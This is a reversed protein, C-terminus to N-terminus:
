KYGPFKSRIAGSVDTRLRYDLIVIADPESPSIDPIDVIHEKALSVLADPVPLPPVVFEMEEVHAKAALKPFRVQSAIEIKADPLSLYDEVISVLECLASIAVKVDRFMPLTRFEVTKRTIKRQTHRNWAWTQFNIATRYANTQNILQSPKGTNPDVWEAGTTARCYKNEDRLRKWFQGKVGLRKGWAEWRKRWHDFFAPRTLMLAAGSHRFSLHVHMGVSSNTYDPYLVQLRNIQEGLNGPETQFEWPTIGRPLQTTEGKRLLFCACNPDCECWRCTCNDPRATDQFKAQDADEGDLDVPYDNRLDDCEEHGCAPEHCAGKRVAKTSVGLHKHHGRAKTAGCTCEHVMHIGDCEDCEGDRAKLSDDRGGQPWGKDQVLQLMKELNLWFGEVEVGIKDIAGEDRTCNTKLHGVFNCKTCTRRKDPTELKRTAIVTM